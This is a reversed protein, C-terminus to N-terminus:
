RLIVPALVGCAIRAGSNGSPDTRYDDAAAHVVVAAGDADLLRNGGDELRAQSITFEIRGRGDGGVNLNPIDGLHPGQPNQSGHLRGSPNWHPGASTFDPPNCAGVTHLHVGHVGASARSTTVIVHIGQDTQTATAIGVEGGQSDRLTTVAGGARRDETMDTACASLGILCLGALLTSRKMKFRRAEGRIFTAARV